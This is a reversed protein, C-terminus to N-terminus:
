WNRGAGSIRWPPRRIKNSWFAETSFCSSGGRQRRCRVFCRRLNQPKRVLSGNGQQEASLIMAQWVLRQIARMQDHRERGGVM